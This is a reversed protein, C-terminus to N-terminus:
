TKCLKSHHLIWYITAIIVGGMLTAFAWTIGSVLFIPQGLKNLYASDKAVAGAFILHILATVVTVLTKILNMENALTPLWEM